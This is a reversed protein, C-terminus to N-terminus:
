RYNVKATIVIPGAANAPVRFQYRVLQSGGAQVTNDYGVSRIRWVEHNDVLEGNQDIPLNIFAHAYRDLVGDPEIIGSHYIEKGTADKVTFEVWAQYLDRIEPLLSHGIGKNQIVVFAEIVDNPKIQFPVSGLPAILREDGAKKIGFIDVNLYSGYRLFRITKELQADYKYFFPM